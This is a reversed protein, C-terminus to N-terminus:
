AQAPIRLMQGPYIKDPSTLMPKNAEFIANYKNADGYMQKSIKSLTDGSVVTYFKAEPAATAVTMQDNVHEVSHINGCCLVVKERTAQDQAQGSVTATASAGDFSVELNDVPLNQTKIYNLIAKGATDNLAAVDAQSPPASAPAAAAPTAASADKSGLNFLKQGADKVFSLLGM